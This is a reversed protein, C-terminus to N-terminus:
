IIKSIEVPNLKHKWKNQDKYFCIEFLITSLMFLEKFKHFDSSSDMLLILDTFTQNMLINDVYQYELLIIKKVHAFVLYYRGLSVFNIM